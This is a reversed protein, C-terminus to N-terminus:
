VRDGSDRLWTDRPSLAVCATLLVLCSYAPGAYALRIPELIPPPTHYFGPIPMLWLVMPVVSSRLVSPWVSMVVKLM